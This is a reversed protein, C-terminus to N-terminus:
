TRRESRNRIFPPLVRGGQSSVDTYCMKVMFPLPIEFFNTTKVYCIVPFALVHIISIPPPLMDPINTNSAQMPRLRWWIRIHSLAPFSM